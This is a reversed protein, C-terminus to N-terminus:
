FKSQYQYTKVLEATNLGFASDLVQLKFIDNYEKNGVAVQGIINGIVGHQIKEPLEKIKKVMEQADLQFITELDEKSINNEKYIHELGLKKIIEKPEIIYLSMESFRAGYKNKLPQMEKYPYEEIDGFKSFRVQPASDHARITIGGDGFWCLTVMSEDKERKEDQKQQNQLIALIVDDMSTDSSETEKKGTDKNGSSEKLEQVEKELSKIYKLIEDTSVASAEKKAEVPKVDKKEVTAKEVPEKIKEKTEKKNTAM